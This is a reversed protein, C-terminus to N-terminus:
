WCRRRPNRLAHTSAPNARAFHHGFGAGPLRLVTRAPFDEGGALDGRLSLATWQHPLEDVVTVAVRERGRVRWGM